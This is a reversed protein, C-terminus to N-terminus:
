GARLPPFAPITNLPSWHHDMPSHAQVGVSRLVLVVVVSTFAWRSRHPWRSCRGSPRALDLQAPGQARDEGPDVAELDDGRPPANWSGVGRRLGRTSVELSRGLVEIPGM